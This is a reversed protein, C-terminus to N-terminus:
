RSKIVGVRRCYRAIPCRSCFPSVSTCTGQGFTVFLTNLDHWFNKPVIKLLVQETEEASKTKVWGLRNSLQHVHVDVPIYDGKLKHGYRMVIGMTKRGVNPLSLLEESSQPVKGDFKDVLINCLDFINKAKTKYFNVSKVCKRFAPLGIELIDEPTNVVKFLEKCVRATVEDRTRLSLICSILVHFVHKNQAYLEVVPVQYGQIEKELISFIEDFHYKM